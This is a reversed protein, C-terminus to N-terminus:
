KHPYSRIVLGAPIIVVENPCQGRVEQNNKKHEPFFHPHSFIKASDGQQLEQQQNKPFPQRLL